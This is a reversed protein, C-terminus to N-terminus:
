ELYKRFMVYIYPPVRGMSCVYKRFTPLANVHQLSALDSYLHLIQIYRKLKNAQCQLSTYRGHDPFSGVGRTVDPWSTRLETLMRNRVVTTVKQIMQNEVVIDITVLSTPLENKLVDFLIIYPEVSPRGM